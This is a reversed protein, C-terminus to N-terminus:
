LINKIDKLARKIWLGIEFPPCKSVTTRAKNISYIFREPDYWLKFGLPIGQIFAMDRPSMMTGDWNFQRNQKRVTMPFGNPRNRYVGPLTKLRPNDNVPWKYRDKYEGTWLDKVEQLNLKKHAYSMCVVTGLPESLCFYKEKNKIRRSLYLLARSTKIRRVPFIKLKPIGLGKKRGVMILRHRSVQSNGFKSVNEIMIDLEYEGKFYENFEKETILDLLKPLNEMIFLSPKFKNISNIFTMMSLNEKPNGLKKARSYSLISSPGCDPAGIIIDAGGNYEDLSKYYPAKFNLSWQIQNPTYFVSRPEINAVIHRRLCYYWSGNSGCVALIKM